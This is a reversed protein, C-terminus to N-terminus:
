GTGRRDSASNRVADFLAQAKTETENWEANAQSDAVIGGGSCYHLTGATTVATRIAVSLEVSRSGNLFGIAGTYVGRASDEVEAIIEMSRIKPAGTISGGPFTARLVGALGVNVALCGRVESVMHHLTAFSVVEAFAPVSVSGIRCIRGLDSRELDVIMLHEAREKPDAALERALARDRAREIARGRTGKIPFTRIIEGDIRLFCEPSNSLLQWAGLDLYAGHPVPQRERLRRYADAPSVELEFRIRRSLNAQYIDGAAIASKVHEFGTLYASRDDNPRIGVASSTTSHAGRRLPELLVPANDKFVIAGTAGTAPHWAEVRDYTALVALPAGVPDHATPPVDEIFAGLEYAFYGV